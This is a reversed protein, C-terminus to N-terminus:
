YRFNKKRKEKKKSKYKSNIEKDILIKYSNIKDDINDIAKTIKVYEDIIDILM